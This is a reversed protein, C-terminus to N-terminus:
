IGGRKSEAREVDSNSRKRRSFYQSLPFIPNGTQTSRGNMGGSGDRFTATSNSAKPNNQGRAGKSDSGNLDLDNRALPKGQNKFSFLKSVADVHSALICLPISIAATTGFIISFIWVPKYLVNGDLSPERPFITVNLAFLSTLFSMPLFVITVVTFVMLTKGQKLSMENQELSLISDVALQIREAAANTQEIDDLGHEAILGLPASLWVSKEPSAEDDLIECVNKQSTLVNKLINLEDRIDKIEKALKAAVLLSSRDQVQNANKAAEKKDKKPRVHPRRDLKTIFKNFLEAEAIAKSNISNQFVQHVSEEATGVDCTEHDFLGICTKVIFKSMEVASSPLLQGKKSGERLQHWIHDLVPDVASLELSQMSSTILTEPTERIRKTVVQDGNRSAIDRATTENNSLAYYYAEDVTRPEHFIAGKKQYKDILIRYKIDTFAWKFDTPAPEDSDETTSGGMEDYTLTGFTLYPMYLALCTTKDSGKSNNNENFKVGIPEMFPKQSGASRIEHGSQRLFTELHAFQTQLEEQGSKSQKDKFLRKVLDEMWEMNNAPLHIWRLKMEGEGYLKVGSVKTVIKSIIEFQDYKCFFTLLERQHHFDTIVAHFSDIDESKIGWLKPVEYRKTVDSPSFRRDNYFAAPNQLMDCIFTYAEIEKDLESQEKAAKEDMAATVDDPYATRQLYRLESKAVLIANERIKESNEGHMCRLLCWVVADKGYHAAWDLHTYDKPNPMSSEQAYMQSSRRKKFKKTVLSIINHTEKEQAALIMIKEAEEDDRFYPEELSELLVGVTELHKGSVAKELAANIAEDKSVRIGNLLMKVISENGKEVALDLPTHGGTKRTDTKKVLTKANLGAGSKLLDDVIKEYGQNSALHLATYGEEDAEDVQAKHEILKEVIRKHGQM